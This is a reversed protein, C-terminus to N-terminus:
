EVEYLGANTFSKGDIPDTVSFWGVLKWSSVPPDKAADATTSLYWVKDGANAFKTIDLIKHTQDHRLMELSGYQYTTSSDMFYVPNKDTAYVDADYFTWPSDTVVPIKESSRDQILQMANKAMSITNTDFNYNGYHLVNGAGVFVLVLAALLLLYQKIRDSKSKLNVGASIAAVLVLIVMSFIVYRNIFMPRMPPMSLIMLLTPPLFALLLILKLSQKGSKNLSCWVKPLIMASLIIMVLFVITVYNSIRDHTSYAIAEGFFNAITDLSLTPIWFGAEKLIILQYLMNGLWPAFVILATVISIIFGKSFYKKAFEKPRTTQNKIITARWILQAIIALAAYYHTWMAAAILLGYVLWWIKNNDKSAKILVITSLLLLFILLTYCRMETSYRLLMPSFTAFLLSLYGVKQGFLKRMLFFITIISGVAFVVSMSRLAVDGFGFIGSWIKLLFYYFPANVDAATYNWIDSFSHKVMFVSFSEDFWISWTGIKSLVITLFVAISLGLALSVTLKKHESAFTVVNSFLKKLKM